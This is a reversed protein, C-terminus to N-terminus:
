RGSAVIIAGICLIMFVIAFIWTVSEAPPHTETPNPPVTVKKM